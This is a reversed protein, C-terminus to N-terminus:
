NIQDESLERSKLLPEITDKQATFLNDAIDEVQELASKLDELNDLFDQPPAGGLRIVEAVLQDGWEFLVKSLAAKLAFTTELDLEAQSWEGLLDDRVSLTYASGEYERTHVSVKPSKLFYHKM